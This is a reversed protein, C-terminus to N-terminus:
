KVRKKVKLPKASRWISDVMRYFSRAISQDTTVLALDTPSDSLDPSDPDIYHIMAESDDLIVFGVGFPRDVLRVDALESLKKVSAENDADSHCLIRWHVEKERAVLLEKEFRACLRTPGNHTAIETLRKRARLHWDATERFIAERGFIIRTHGEGYARGHLSAIRADLPTAQKWTTEYFQRLLKVYAPYTTVLESAKAEDGAIPTELGVAVYKDDVGYVHIMIPTYHRVQIATSLRRASNINTEEVELISRARLHKKSITELAYKVDGKRVVSARRNMTWVESEATALAERFERRIEDAGVVVRVQRESRDETKKALTELQATLEEIGDAIGKYKTLVISSLASIGTRVGTARFRVPRDLTEEVLGLSLLRSMVQYVQSRQLQADRAIEIVRCTGLRMVALYTKAEIATLGLTQLRNILGDLKPQVL